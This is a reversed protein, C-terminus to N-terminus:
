KREKIVSEIINIEEPTLNYKKYLEEDTFIHDFKEPITICRWAENNALNTGVLTTVCVFRVIKSYMFSVFSKAEDFTEFSYLCSYNFPAIYNKGLIYLKNIGVTKGGDDFFYCYGAMRNIVVNIKEVDQINKSIDHLSCEAIVKGGSIINIGNGFDEFKEGATIGWHSVSSKFEFPVVSSIGTMKQVINYTINNLTNGVERFTINNFGKIKGSKNIIEKNDTVAHGFLFISIGDVEAINFIETSCPYYVIKRMYPVINKRFDENKKGGKAQWNAPTIMVTYNSSLHQAVTVFDLYIDNNYPPNGIVVDFKMQGFEKKMEDILMKHNNNLCATKYQDFVGFCLIHPNDVKLTGYVARVSYMQCQGNPAIGYLQNNTIYKYREKDDPYSKIMAKSNMLRERISTLFIGSKCCIDLFKSEPIFVEDPLLAVMDKAINAPTVISTNNGCDINIRELGLMKMTKPYPDIYVNSEM